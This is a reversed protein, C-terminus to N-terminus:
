RSTTTPLSYELKKLMTTTLSQWALDRPFLGTQINDAWDKAVEELFKAEDEMNGDPAICVGLTCKAAEVPLWCLVKMNGEADQVQLTAPMEKLMAYWWKGAMWKYDVLYWHM